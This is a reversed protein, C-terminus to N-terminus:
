HGLMTKCGTHQLATKNTCRCASKTRTGVCNVIDKATHCHRRCMTWDHETTEDVQAPTKSKEAGRFLQKWIKM